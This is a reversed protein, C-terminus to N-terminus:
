EKCVLPKRNIFVNRQSNCMVESAVLDSFSTYSDEYKTECCILNMHNM